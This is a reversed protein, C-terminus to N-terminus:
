NNNEEVKYTNYNKLGTIGAAGNTLGKKDGKTATLTGDAVTYMLTEKGVANTVTVKYTTDDTLDTITADGATGESGDALTVKAPVEIVKYTKSNDLGTIETGALAALEGETASLAGDAKVYNVTNDVVVVYKKSTLGTIKKDGAQGKSDQDLKVKEVPATEVEVKYTNYNKLGTIGAAGNTLGKKDSKTATLTGDAVTYMPTEEGVADTVTVKYTTGDALGTITEDGATGESGGALTVQAPVEIVKYTKSNDLGTIETGTLEALEGETASLTGDAKVYNVTNDVVVVYKKSTLGTIKKDGAQGKSDQDLKVTPVAEVEVKYTNYNKLGTIGAAGNTLGKKDGKTATLTGDAVTYMPTEGGVADTVTVKYTTGDALGTITADGATGESGGALTVQAPVEIVKYTKSNDLGTIETGTLEALEGETASLTGDAKVYNVTNDVVVVYKKSTLGTIKKNGAQGKSDQDLKVTPVAEVEVKYTNYNKLGTIGAAGNTLGKKDGKTATLTGNAVTYMATEEGVADTVTVKYTTGDALGTITADGATGESGGALTVQAPVEIVKYIKSNDLGTIETGTLEALEGETASLTGDAKVYNVTNDVVVVYKKSTLGTIKKNGAQGKSDQDLKVTPVAEVEVKYTNYNKLGTIGA